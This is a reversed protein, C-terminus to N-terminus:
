DHGSVEESKARELRMGKEKKNERGERSVHKFEVTLYSNACLQSLDNRM